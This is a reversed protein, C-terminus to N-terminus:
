RVKEYLTFTETMWVGRDFLVRGPSVHRQVYGNSLLVSATPDADGRLSPILIYRTLNNDGLHSLPPEADRSHHVYATPWNAYINRDFYPQLAVAFYGAGTIEGPRAGIQHLFRAMDAAGSYPNVLDFRWARIASWTQIAFVVSLILALLSPKYWHPLREERPPYAIWLAAILAVVIAGEHHPGGFFFAQFVIIGGVGLVFVLAERRWVAFVAVVALIAAALYWPAIIAHELTSALKHIGGGQFTGGVIVIDRAPYTTQFFLIFGFCIVLLSFLRTRRGASTLSKWVPLECWVAGAAFAGALMAGHVSVFTLVALSIALPVSQRRRYFIAAAGAFLLLMVYPRAVIAYQYAIYFSFAMLYRVVRPFPACFILLAAGAIAFAAGIWNMAAYPAHFIHQAMWLIGDWLGPSVEYHMEHFLLKGLPLDRAIVWAQAEDAWPEHHMVGVIVFLAYATLVGCDLLRLGHSPLFLAKLRARLPISM